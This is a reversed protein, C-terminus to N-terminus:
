PRDPMLDMEAITGGYLPVYGDNVVHSFDRVECHTYGHEDAIMALRFLLAARDIPTPDSQLTAIESADGTSERMSDTLTGTWMAHKNNEGGCHGCIYTRRDDLYLSVVCSLPGRAADSLETNEVAAVRLDSDIGATAASGSAMAAPNPTTTSASTKPAIKKTGNQKKM